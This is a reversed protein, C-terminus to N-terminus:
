ARPHGVCGARRRHIEPGAASPGRRLWGGPSFSSSGDAHAPFKHVTKSSPTDVRARGPTRADTPARTHVATERLQRMKRVQRIFPQNLGYEALTRTDECREGMFVLERIPGLSPGLRKAVAAKVDAVRTDMSVEFMQPGAMALFQTLTTASPPILSPTWWAWGHPAVLEM